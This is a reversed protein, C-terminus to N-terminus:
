GRGIAAAIESEMAKIRDQQNMSGAERNVPPTSASPASAVSAARAKKATIGPDAPPTPSVPAPEQGAPATAPAASASPQQGTQFRAFDLSAKIVQQWNPPGVVEGSMPSRQAMQEAFHRIVGVNTAQVLLQEADNEALNNASAYTRTAADIQQATNDLNSNLPAYQQSDQQQPTGKLSNIEDRLGAILNATDPDMASLDALDADRTSRQQQAQWAAFKEHDQKSIAVAQGNEIAAFQAKVPEPLQRAWNNLIIGNRVEDDTFTHAQDGEEWTYGASPASDPASQDAGEADTATTDAPTDTATDAPPAHTETGEVGETGESADAPSVSEGEGAGATPAADGEVTDTNIKEAMKAIDFAADATAGGPWGGPPADDGTDYTAGDRKEFEAIVSAAFDDPPTLDETATSNTDSM